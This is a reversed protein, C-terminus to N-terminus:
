APSREKVIKGRVNTDDGARRIVGEAGIRGVPQLPHHVNHGLFGLGRIRGRTKDVHQATSRLVAIGIREISCTWSDRNTRVPLDNPRVIGFTAAEPEMSM